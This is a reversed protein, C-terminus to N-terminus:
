RTSWPLALPKMKGVNCLLGANLYVIHRVILFFLFFAHLPNPAQLQLDIDLSCFCYVDQLVNGDAPQCFCPQASGLLPALTHCLHIAAWPLEYFRCCPPSPLSHVAPVSALTHKQAHIHTHTHARAFTHPCAKVNLLEASCGFQQGSWWYVRPQACQIGCAHVCVSVSELWLAQQGSGRCGRCGERGWVCDWPHAMQSPLIYVKEWSAYSLSWASVKMGLVEVKQGRVESFVKGDLM